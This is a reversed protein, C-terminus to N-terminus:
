RSQSRARGDPWQRARPTCRRGTEDDLPPGPVMLTVELEAITPIAVTVWRYDGLTADARAEFGLVETYFKKAEDQDTVYVTVLSVNTIM